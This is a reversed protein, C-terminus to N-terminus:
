KSHRTPFGEERDSSSGHDPMMNLRETLHFPETFHQEDSEIVVRDHSGKDALRRPIKGVEVDPLDSAQRERGIKWMKLTNQDQEENREAQISNYLYM